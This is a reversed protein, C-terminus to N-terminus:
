AGQPVPEPPHTTRSPATAAAASGGGAGGAGDHWHLAVRAPEGGAVTMEETGDNSYSEEGDFGLAPLEDLAPLDSLFDEAEEHESGSPSESGEMPQPGGDDLRLGEASRQAHEREQRPSDRQPHQLGNVPRRVTGGPGGAAAAAAGEMAVAVGGGVRSEDGGIPEPTRSRYPSLAGEARESGRRGGSPM